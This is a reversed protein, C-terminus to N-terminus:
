PRLRVSRGERPRAGFPARGREHGGWRDRPQPWWRTVLRAQESPKRRVGRYPRALRGPGLPAPWWSGRVMGSFPSKSSVWAAWTRRRRWISGAAITAAQQREREDRRDARGGRPRGSVGVKGRDIAEDLSLSPGLPDRADGEADDVGTLDNMEVAELLSPLPLGTVGVDGKWTLLTAFAKVAVAM